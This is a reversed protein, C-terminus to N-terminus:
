AAFRRMPIRELAQAKVDDSLGALRGYRSLRCVANVTIGIRAAEKALSQTLALVGGQLPTVPRVLLRWCHASPPINVIRGHRQAIM